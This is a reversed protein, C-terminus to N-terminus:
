QNENKKRLYDCYAMALSLGDTTAAFACRSVSCTATREMVHYAARTEMVWCDDSGYIFGIKRLLKNEEIIMKRLIETEKTDM